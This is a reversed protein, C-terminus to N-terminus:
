DLRGLTRIWALAERSGQAVELMLIGPVKYTHLRKIVQAAAEFRDRTTTALVKYEDEWRTTGELAYYTRANPLVTVTAALAQDVLAEAIEQATEESGCTTLIICADTM